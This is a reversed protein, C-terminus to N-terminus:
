WRTSSSTAGSGPIFDIYFKEACLGTPTRLSLQVVMAARMLRHVVLKGHRCATGAPIPDLRRPSHIHRKAQVVCVRQGCVWLLRLLLLLFSSSKFSLPL